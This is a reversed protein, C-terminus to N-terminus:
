NLFQATDEINLTKTYKSFIKKISGDKYMSDLSNELSQFDKDAIDLNRALTRMASRFVIKSEIEVGEKKAYYPGVISDAAWVDIRGGNLKKANADDTTVEQINGGFGTLYEAEDSGRIAGINLKLVEKLVSIPRTDGKKVFIASQTVLLPSVWRYNYERDQSRSVPM